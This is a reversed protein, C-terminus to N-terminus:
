TPKKNSRKLRNALRHAARLPEPIRYGNLCNVVVTVADQLGCKHGPSIFVPKVNHRTRYVCGVEKNDVILPTSSGEDPGVDNHQGVLKKRACGISPIDLVLGLHSALGIRRPHAIGHGSFLIADPRTQLRSLAKLIVPGERFAYLGPVYPFSANASAGAKERAIMDPYSYLCAGAYLMDTKHDFATDVGAILNIGDLSGEIIIQERFRYQIELAQSQGTPWPHIESIEM